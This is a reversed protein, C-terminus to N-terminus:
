GRKVKKCGMQNLLNLWHEVVADDVSNQQMDYSLGSYEAKTKGMNHYPMLEIGQIKSYRKELAAIEKFHEQTDNIGPIIPCRIIINAHHRHLFDLNELIGQNSVGTYMQHKQDNFLKIDFLFLDVFPLLKEFKDRSAYGCTEICTHIGHKQATQLIEFAFNFQLTPEGGSLTLGGGSKDYYAKDQAVTDIIQNVNVKYGVMRLADYICEQVCAGINTCRSFNVLHRGKHMAHTTNPCATVCAGCHTCNKALFALQPLPARSEPNSCWTCQLPCGKLFVVTRIGPGDHLAFKQIDFIIGTM